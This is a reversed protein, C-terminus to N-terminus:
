LEKSAKQLALFNKQLPKKVKNKDKKIKKEFNQNM